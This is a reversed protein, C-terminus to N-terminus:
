ETPKRLSITSKSIGDQLQEMIMINYGFTTPLLCCGNSAVIARFEALAIMLGIHCLLM